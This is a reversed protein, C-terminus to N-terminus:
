RDIPASEAHSLKQGTGSLTQMTIRHFRYRCDYTGVFMATADPTKWYDSLSFQDPTGKWAVITRGDVAVTVSQKKVTIILQSLRNQQLINGVFTSENGVNQGDINEIATRQQNPEGYALLTAFRHNASRHGLILGNPTDLPEVILTLRYEDPPSWPLQLKAGFMKPSELVRDSKSWQGHTWCTDPNAMKLLDVETKPLSTVVATDKAAPNAVILDACLTTPILTQTPNTRVQFYGWIEATEDGTLQADVRFSVPTDRDFTALPVSAPPKSTKAQSVEIWPGDIATQYRVRLTKISCEKGWNLKLNVVDGPKPTAPEVIARFATFLQTQKDTAVEEPEWNLRIKQEKDIWSESLWGRYQALSMVSGNQPKPHPLGVTHGCGEHYIVCGTGRYPVRWGDASVLGWGVGRDALYAARSGGSSAGPFHQGNRLNGEFVYKGNEPHLRFFDDLPRWNIESLVLLIPFVDGERRGFKLREDVEKLTRFYIANADGQRLTNTNAKSVLPKPHIATTLTSQGQFERAHFLEIRRCFYQLRDHWDTLPTRDAPVFYVVTVEIQSTDYKGDWTKTGASCAAPLTSTLYLIALLYLSRM